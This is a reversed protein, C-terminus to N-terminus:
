RQAEQDTRQSVERYQADICEIDQHSDVEARLFSLVGPLHHPDHKRERNEMNTISQTVQFTHPAEEHQAFPRLLLLLLHRPLTVVM